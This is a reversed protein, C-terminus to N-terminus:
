PCAAPQTECAPRVRALAFGHLEDTLPEASVSFAQKWVQTGSRCFLHAEGRAPTGELATRIIANAPCCRCHPGDGCGTCNDTSRICGLIEGLRLGLLAESSDQSLLKLFARNCYVVQRTSNLVLAPEALRAVRRQLVSLARVQALQGRM